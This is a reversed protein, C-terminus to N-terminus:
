HVTLRRVSNSDTVMGSFFRGFGTLRRREGACVAAEALPESM